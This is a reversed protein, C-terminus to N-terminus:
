SGRCVLFSPFMIHYVDVFCEFVDCFFAGDDDAFFLGLGGDLFVRGFGDDDGFVAGIGVGEGGEGVLLVDGGVGVGVGPDVEAVAAAFVVSDGGDGDEVFSFGVDEGKDFGPFLVVIVSIVRLLSM